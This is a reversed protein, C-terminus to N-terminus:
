MLGVAYVYVSSLKISLKLSMCFCLGRCVFVTVIINYASVFCTQDIFM